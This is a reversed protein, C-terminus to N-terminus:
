TTPITPTALTWAAAWTAPGVLGDVALGARRQVEKAADRASPTYFGDVFLEIGLDAVRQEWKRFDARHSYYGSVSLLNSLPYRPGFYYGDKLPFPPAASPVPIEVPPIELIEVPLGAKVWNTLLVGPCSTSSVANHYSRRTTGSTALQDAYDMVWRIKAKMKDSPSEGTGMIALISFSRGGWGSTAGDRRMWGRLEYLRGEQDVGVNYAIDSWGRGDMHFDQWGRIYSKIKEIDSGIVGASGPWHVFLHTVLLWTLSNVYDAPRLGIQARTFDFPPKSIVNM